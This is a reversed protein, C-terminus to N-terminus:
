AATAEVPERNLPVQSQTDFRLILHSDLHQVVFLRTCALMLSAPVGPPTQAGRLREALSAWWVDLMPNVTNPSGRGLEQRVRDITPREGRTLLADAAEFVEQETIGRAM